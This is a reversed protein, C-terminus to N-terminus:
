KLMSLPIQQVIQFICENFHEVLFETDNRSAASPQIVVVVDGAKLSVMAGTPASKTLGQALVCTSEHRPNIANLFEINSAGEALSVLAKADEATIDIKISLAKPDTLMRNSFASSLVIRNTTTVLIDSVSM